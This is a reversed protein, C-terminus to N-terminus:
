LFHKFSDDMSTDDHPKIIYEIDGNEDRQKRARTERALFSKTERAERGCFPALGQECNLWGYLGKPM